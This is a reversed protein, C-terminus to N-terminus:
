SSAFCSLGFLWTNALGQSHPAGVSFQEAYSLVSHLM